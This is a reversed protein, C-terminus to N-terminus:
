DMKSFEEYQEQCITMSVESRRIYQNIMDDDLIEEEENDENDKRKM